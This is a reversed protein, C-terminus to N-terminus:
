KFYEEVYQLAELVAKSHVTSAAAQEILQKGMLKNKPLGRGEYYARGYFFLGAPHKADYAMKAWQLAINDDLTVVEGKYYMQAIDYAADMYGMSAAAKYFALAYETNQEYHAIGEEYILGKAYMVAPDQNQPDAAMVKDAWANAEDEKGALGFLYACFAMAFPQGALAPPICMNLSGCIIDEADLGSGLHLVSKYAEFAMATWKEQLAAGAALAQQQAEEEAKRKAEEEAQLKAQEEAQRKAEAQAKQKAEEEAVQAAPKKNFFNVLYFACSEETVGMEEATAPDALLFVTNAFHQLEPSYNEEICDLQNKARTVNNDMLTCAVELLLENAEPYSSFIALRDIIGESEKRKGIKRYALCSWFSKWYNDAKIDEYRKVCKEPKLASLVLYYKYQLEDDTFTNALGSFGDLAQMLDNVNNELLAESLEDLRRRARPTLEKKSADRQGKVSEWIKNAEEPDLHLQLCYSKLEQEEATSLDGDEYARVCADYFLKSKEDKLESDSKSGYHNVTTNSINRQDYTNTTSTRTVNINGDVAFGNGFNVGLEPTQPEELLRVSGGDPGMCDSCFNGKDYNKKCQPCYM